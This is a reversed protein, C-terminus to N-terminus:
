QAQEWSQFRHTLYCKTLDGTVNYTYYVEYRLNKPHRTIVTGVSTYIKAKRDRCFGQIIGGDCQGLRPNIIRVSDGVEPVNEATYELEKKVRTKM